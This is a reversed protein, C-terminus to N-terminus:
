PTAEQETIYGLRIMDQKLFDFDHEGDDQRYRGVSAPEVDISELGFGLFKELQRLTNQQRLVFDEFRVTIMRKPPPTAAVIQSQYKWSIARMRRVNDTPEYEIGFRRLDDTPHDALVVDRPDRVWYIYYADAFLRVIWPLALITEPLKWGKQPGDGDQVSSLYTEVLEVFPADIDMNHLRDFDWQLNGRYAVHRAMIRCAQYMPEAPILDGSSNLPHGMHVGSATLTHSIARTGSHGRGIVIILSM